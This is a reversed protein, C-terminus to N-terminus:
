STRWHGVASRPVLFPFSGNPTVFTLHRWNSTCSWRPAFELTTQNNKPSTCASQKKIVCLETRTDCCYLWLYFRADTFPMSSKVEARRMSQHSSLLMNVSPASQCLATKGSQHNNPDSHVQCVPEHFQHFKLFQIQPWFCCSGRMKYQKTMSKERVEATATTGMNM